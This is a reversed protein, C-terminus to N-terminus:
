GAPLMDLFRAPTAIPIGVAARLSLLHEDGTVIYAAQAEVACDIIMNDSADREVIQHHTKPYCIEVLSELERMVTAIFGSTLRFKRYQLVSETEALIEPSLAIRFRGAIAHEMVRQPAGGFLVASIIVNTDLTAAIM